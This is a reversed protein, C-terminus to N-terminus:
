GFIKVAESQDAPIGWLVVLLISTIITNNKNGTKTHRGDSLLIFVFSGTALGTLWLILWVNGYNELGPHMISSPLGVCKMLMCIFYLMLSLTGSSYILLDKKSKLEKILVFFVLPLFLLVFSAFGLFLLFDTIRFLM